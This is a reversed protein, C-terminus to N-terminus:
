GTFGNGIGTTVLSWRWTLSRLSNNIRIYTSGIGLCVKRKIWNSYCSVIRIITASVNGNVKGISSLGSVITAPCQHVGIFHYVCSIPLYGHLAYGIGTADLMHRVTLARFCH